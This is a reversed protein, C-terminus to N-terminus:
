ETKSPRMNIQDSAKKAQKEWQCTSHNYLFNINQFSEDDEERRSHDICPQAIEVVTSFFTKLERLWFLEVATPWFQHYGVGWQAVASCHRFYFNEPSREGLIRNRPFTSQFVTESLQVACMRNWVLVNKGPVLFSWKQLLQISTPPLSWPPILPLLFTGSLRHNKGPNQKINELELLRAVQSYSSSQSHSQIM